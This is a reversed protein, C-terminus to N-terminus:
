LHPVVFDRRRHEHDRTVCETVKKGGRACVKHYGLEKNVVNHVTKCLLEEMGAANM